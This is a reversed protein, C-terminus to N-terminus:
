RTTFDSKPPLPAPGAHDRRSYAGLPRTEELFHMRELAQMLAARLEQKTLAPIPKGRFRTDRALDFPLPTTM